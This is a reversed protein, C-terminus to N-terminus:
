KRSLQIRLAQAEGEARRGPGPATRAANRANGSAITKLSMSLASSPARGIVQHAQIRKIGGGHGRSESGM